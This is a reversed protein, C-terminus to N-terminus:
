EPPAAAQEIRQLVEFEDTVLLVLPTDDSLSLERRVCDAVVKELRGEVDVAGVFPVSEAGEIELEYGVAPVVEVRIERPGPRRKRGCVQVPPEEPHRTAYTPPLLFGFRGCGCRWELIDDTEPGTLEVPNGCPCNPNGGIM